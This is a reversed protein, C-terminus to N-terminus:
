GPKRGSKKQVKDIMRSLEKDLLEDGVVVEMSTELYYVPLFRLLPPLKVMDKATTVLWEARSRAFQTSIYDLQSKNYRCHDPVTIRQVLDAGLEVVDDFFNSPNAIGAFALTKKGAIEEPALLESHDIRRWYKHKMRTVIVPKNLLNGLKLARDALKDDTGKAKSLVILDARKLSSVPERLFGAPLLRRNGLPNRGDLLTIDLDRHLRRHQFGDDLLILNVRLDRVAKDAGRFRNRDVVVVTHPLSETILVPEDGASWIDALQRKGDNVVLTKRASGKYGRSIIGVKISHGADLHKLREALHIVFPTKGTGGTSINGVCIVPADVRHVTLVGIDYLRNRLQVAAQYPISLPLLCGLPKM